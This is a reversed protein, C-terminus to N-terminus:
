LAAHITLRKIPGTIGALITKNWCWGLATLGATQIRAPKEATFPYTTNIGLTLIIRYWPKPQHLGTNIFLTFLSVMLRSVSYKLNSDWQAGGLIIIHNTDVQRIAQTIKKYLPELHPNFHDKDFYTAIPENLVDYGLVTTENKYHIAIQKWIAATQAQDAESEFLFPYGYGDDINDGTQGGPACHMDLMVYLGEKKCWGVVRDMLMFGRQIGHDGLYTEDSFMRYNFPIRISNVGISKLYHIDDATIYADLYKQWFVKAEAPGILETIAENILRPSSIDGFKFMYGEPVLWNGLNTGRMIFPKGDVGIVDKGKVSIFARKQAQATFLNTFLVAVIVIHKMM